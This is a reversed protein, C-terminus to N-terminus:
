NIVHFTIKGNNEVIGLQNRELGEFVTAVGNEVDYHKLIEPPGNENDIYVQVKKEYAVVFMNDSLLCINKILGSGDSVEYPEPIYDDDTTMVFARWGSYFGIRVYGNVYYKVDLKDIHEQLYFLVDILGSESIRLVMNDCALYYAEDGRMLENVHVLPIRLGEEKFFCRVSLKLEGALSYTNLFVEGKQSNVTVIDGDYMGIGIQHTHLFGPHFVRLEDQFYKNSLLKKEGLPVEAFLVIHNNNDPDALAVMRFGEPINVHWTFVELHKDASIRTMVMGTRMTGFVLLQNQWYLTKLWTADKMLRMDSSDPKQEPTDKTTHIFRYCDPALLQDNSIFNKLHHLSNKRGASVEESVIEYAIQRCTNELENTKQKKNIGDIVNLFSLKKRDADGSTYFRQLEEHLKEKNDDAVLDFYKTLCAEPQKVDQWGELLVKKARPRNGIKDTIIRSQELYDNNEKAKDVGNEFCALANDNQELELYLDGAKEHEQLGTYIEIAEVYLGGEKYCEAAQLPNYLHDKYLIAAERYHKGQKLASAAMAYDGLLHAYVYAAKKYDKNDIAQQAANLYKSRLDSYYKDTNWGDVAQGGGLSGLNFQSSNKTLQGGPTATGRNLYPSSLPIAYQLFEDMNKEFMDSLRKLESDRQKELDEIKQQMWNTVRGFFGSGSGGSAGEMGGGGGLPPMVSGAVGGSTSFIRGLGRLLWYAGKLIGEAIKNNLFSPVDNDNAKKIDTLPKNSISEKESEFIEDVTLQQVNIQHLPIFPSNGKHAYEWNIDAPETYQLLGPLAVQDKREFGIFGLTPHFVQCDWILLSQLEKESIAPALEADVPIYLKGGKLTYPQKVQLIGPTQKKSFIVFLGAADVPNNNNSIIYCVLQTLPIQWANMEQLWIAPSNGRIFAANLSHTAHENYKLTLEM